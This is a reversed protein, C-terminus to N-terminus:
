KVVPQKGGIREDQRWALQSERGAIKRKLQVSAKM